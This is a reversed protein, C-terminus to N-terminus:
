PRERFAYLAVAAIIIVGRVLTQVFANAQFQNFVSDLVALMLVAAVTGLLRGRGGALATGGLVVAAISELDYGGDPGVWPAGAGLRSALFMGSAAACMGALVHAIVVVRGTRIGSARASEVNGGVAYLHYGFKTRHLLMWAGAVVAALLFVSVPVGAVADYGLSQFSEPVSGAFNDFLANLIGRVVLSMGLTAIFPNVRLGVIVAGNGLGIVAGIVLAAAVGLPINGTGGMVVSTSVAAVSVVYAVSLDLSGALVVLSQGVAVLGLAVSSQAINQLNPLAVFNGGDLAVVLWALGFLLVLVLWIPRSSGTLRGIAATV